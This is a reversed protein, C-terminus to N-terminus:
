KRKGKSDPPSPSAIMGAPGAIALAQQHRFDVRVPTYGLRERIADWRQALWTLRQEAQQLSDLRGLVFESGQSLRVVYSLTHGVQLVELRGLPQLVRSLGEYAELLSEEQGSPGILRPLDDSPPTASFVHGNADLLSLEGSAVDIWIAIPRYEALSVVLSDPWVRRVDARRVWPLDELARRLAGLDVDFFTKGEVARLAAYRLRDSDSHELEGEIVVTRISPVWQEGWYSWAAAAFLLLALLSLRRTWRALLFPDRWWRAGPPVPAVSSKRSFRESRSM